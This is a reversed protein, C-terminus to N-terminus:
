AGSFFLPYVLTLYIRLYSAYSLYKGVNANDLDPQPDLCVLRSETQKKCAGWKKVESNYIIVHNLGFYLTLNM